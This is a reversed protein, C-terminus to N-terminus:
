ASAAEAQRSLRLALFGIAALVLTLIQFRAFSALFQSVCATVYLVLMWGLFASRGSEAHEGRAGYVAGAML